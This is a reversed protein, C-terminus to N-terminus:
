CKWTPTEAPCCRTRSSSFDSTYVYANKLPIKENITFELGLFYTSLAIKESMKDSFSFGMWLFQTLSKLPILLSILYQHSLKGPPFFFFLFLDLKCSACFGGQSSFCCGGFWVWPILGVLCLCSPLVSGLIHPWLSKWTRWWCQFWHSSPSTPKDERDQLLWYQHSDATTARWFYQGVLKFISGREIPPGHSTSMEIQPRGRTNRDSKEELLCFCVGAGRCSVGGDPGSGSHKCYISTGTSSFGCAVM